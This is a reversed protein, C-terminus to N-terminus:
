LDSLLSGCLPLYVSGESIASAWPSCIGHKVGCPSRPRPVGINEASRACRVTPKSRIRAVSAATSGGASRRIASIPLLWPAKEM